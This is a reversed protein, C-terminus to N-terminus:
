LSSLLLCHLLLQFHLGSCPMQQLTPKVNPWLHFLSGWFEKRQFPSYLHIHFWICLDQGCSLLHNSSLCRISMNAKFYLPHDNASRWTTSDPSPPLSLKFYSGHFSPTPDLQLCALDPQTKFSLMFHNSMDTILLPWTAQLDSRQGFVHWKYTERARLKGVLTSSTQGFIGDKSFSMSSITSKASDPTAVCIGCTISTIRGM